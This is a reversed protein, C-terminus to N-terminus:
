MQGIFEEIWRKTTYLTGLRKTTKLRIFKGDYTRRGIRIWYYVTPLKRTAGTLEILKKPVDPIKILDKHSIPM